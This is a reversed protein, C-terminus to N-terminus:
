SEDTEDSENEFLTPQEPARYSSSRSVGSRVSMDDRVMDDRVSAIEIFSPAESADDQLPVDGGTTKNKRLVGGSFLKM